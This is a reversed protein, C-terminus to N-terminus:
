VSGFFATLEAALREPAEIPINHGVGDLRLHSLAPRVAKARAVEASTMVGGRESDAQLLLLPCRVGAFMQELEYGEAVAEFDRLLQDLM